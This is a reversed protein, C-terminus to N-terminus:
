WAPCPRFGGARSDGGAAAHAGVLLGGLLHLEVVVPQQAGQSEGRACTAGCCGCSKRPRDGPAPCCWGGAWRIFKPNVVGWFRGPYQCVAEQDVKSLYKAVYCFVLHASALHKVNTGALFHRRDGTGAVDYWNRSFWHRIEGKGSLMMTGSCIGSEGRSRLTMEAGGDCVRLACWKGCKSAAWNGKVM